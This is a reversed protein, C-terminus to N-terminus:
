QDHLSVGLTTANGEWQFIGIPICFLRVKQPHSSGGKVMAVVGYSSGIWYQIAAVGLNADKGERIVM